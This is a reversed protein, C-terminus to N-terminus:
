FVPPVLGTGSIVSLSKPYRESQLAVYEYVRLLISLNAALPERFAEARPTSEYLVVDDTRAVIIRDENTGAGLNTPINPDVFVPLGQMSGVFGEANVSGVAAIVNQPANAAPVALPRAQTDVAALIWAWRRPHMFIADPPLYRTTSIQQIADALKPYLEGVTPSADSYSVANLGTVNLLGRKNAANNSIVFTDIKVALDALLDRLLEEDMNVPSQEVLQVSVVQQGAITAVNATVSNTTADTNQVATNQTAQEAVATGTALRPLTVSDTGKPLPTNRMRNALVRGPRALRVYEQVMYLPPVFDGGAGDTTSLARTEMAVERNNRRLRDAADPDARLSLEVMDRVWSPGHPDHRRYTPENGAVTLSSRLEGPQGYKASLEGARQERQEHQRAQRLEYDLDDIAVKLEDFRQSEAVTLSTRQENKVNELLANMQTKLRDREAELTPIHVNM